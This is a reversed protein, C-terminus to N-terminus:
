NLVLVTLLVRDPIALESQKMVEKGKVAAVRKAYAFPDPLYFSYAPIRTLPGGQRVM